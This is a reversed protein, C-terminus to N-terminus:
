VTQKEDVEDFQVKEGMEVDPYFPTELVAENKGSTLLGDNLADHIKKWSDMESSWLVARARIFQSVESESGKALSISDKCIFFIDMGLFLANVAIMGARVSKSAAVSGKVAAQGVDPIDSALRPINRLANGEQAAVKGVNSVVEEAKLLKAASALDVISDISKGVAGFKCIVKTVGLAVNTESTETKSITKQTVEELCAQLKMVDEMFSQLVESAKRQHTRNVGVETATTVISNVGSTVGMGIGTMTLVLSAGATVPMLAFGVISLVGGVAGVSSGVVSSIKAGKNMSDLQVANVELENLFDSMRPQSESFEKIFDHYSDEQFLFVMRFNPDMRIQDLQNIHDVMRQVDNESLDVDLNLVAENIMESSLDSLCSKEMKECIKKTTQIYRDLQYALVDVNQLKPLFFSSADRKFVLLLPCILRAATIVAQVHDSNIDEPLHLVQSVTFVHLSTVALKEVADLFCDLKELGDLTDKLVEALESDLEALKRDATMGTFKNKLYEGFARRKNDSQTVHSFNLDIKDAREKIDTMMEFEKKRWLKWKSFMECFGRVLQMYTLTDTIYHCLAEHLEKRAASM